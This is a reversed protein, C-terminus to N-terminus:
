EEPVNMTRYSGERAIKLQFVEVAHRGKGRGADRIIEKDAKTM